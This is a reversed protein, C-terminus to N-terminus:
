NYSCQGILGMITPIFIPSEGKGPGFDAEPADKAQDVCIRTKLNLILVHLVMTCVSHM